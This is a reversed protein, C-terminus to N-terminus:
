PRTTESEAPGLSPLRDLTGYVRCTIATVDDPLPGISFPVGEILIGDSHTFPQQPELYLDTHLPLSLDGHEIRAVAWYWTAIDYTRGIRYLLRGAQDEITLRLSATYPGWRNSPPNDEDFNHDIQYAAVAAVFTQGRTEYFGCYTIEAHFVVDVTPAPAPAPAVPPTPTVVQGTVPDHTHAPVLVDARVIAFGAFAAIILGIIITLLYRNM